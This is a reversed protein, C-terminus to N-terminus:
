LSASREAQRWSESPERVCACLQASLSHRAAGRVKGVDLAVGGAAVYAYTVCLAAEGTAAEARCRCVLKVFVIIM